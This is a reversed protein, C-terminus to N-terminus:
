RIEHHASRQQVRLRAFPSRDGSMKGSRSGEPSRSAAVTCPRAAAPRQPLTLSAGKDAAVASATAM